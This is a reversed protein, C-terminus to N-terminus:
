SYTSHSLRKDRILGNARCKKQVTIQALGILPLNRLFMFLPLPEALHQCMGRRVSHAALVLHSPSRNALAILGMPVYLIFSDVRHLSRSSLV